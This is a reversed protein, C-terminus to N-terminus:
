AMLVRTPHFTLPETRKGIGHTLNYEAIEEAVQNTSIGKEESLTFITSLLDYIRDVHSRAVAADYGEKQLEVCVNFLGGSNIVYDPAYLIGREYLAEGDEHSLLQNNALGAVAQCNLTPITQPNLAAGLACPALIDCPTSLIEEPSVVKAGFARVAKRIAAEDIDTVILRAGNWFLHSALKTGVAGLGQIAVTRGAVSDSGWLKKCVAQVGRFGGYATFRSPDGSIEPVGVSYRTRQHITALDSPQMGVDEACIYKGEFSNVADAFAFLLEKSKPVRYDAIIVSKGGGTGVESVASKYTMGKALRLADNLAADFTSYPFVRTGGLAPGLTTNHIAIIAHLGAEENKVVVVREFGEIKLEEFSLGVTAKEM